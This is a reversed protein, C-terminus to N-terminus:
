STTMRSQAGPRPMTVSDTTAALSRTSTGTTGAGNDTRLRSCNCAKM